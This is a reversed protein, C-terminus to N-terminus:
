LGGAITRYFDAHKKVCIDVDLKKIATKRANIGLKKSSDFNDILWAAKKVLAAADRIPVIFGNKGDKIFNAVDGVDTSVIAKGMSMAEWVSIPSAEAISSCIYIDAAKLVSPINESSGYFHLNDSNFKQAMRMIKESYAKQSPFHPGVVFFSLHNYSRNLISSMEVFYEIGKLPNVNGVTVIKLGPYKEIKRDKEVKDPDFILTDVPAQIELIPKNSLRQDSLYYKRAKKGSTIFADAFNKALLKFIINIFFPTSTEHLHWVTKKRALRGAIVGKFQWSNNCHVIDVGEKKYLKYLSIVEPIFLLAYKILHMKEKTLRHLRLRKAAVGIACLKKLFFDSDQDPFVVVTDIGDSKLREACAAIFAHPGGYRGEMTINLIKLM